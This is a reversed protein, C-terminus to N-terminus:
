AAEEATAERVHKAHMGKVKDVPRPLPRSWLGCTCAVERQGRDNNQFKMSHGTM